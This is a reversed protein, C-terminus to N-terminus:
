TIALSVGAPSSSTISRLQSGGTVAPTRITEITSSAALCRPCASYKRPITTRRWQAALPSPLSRSSPPVAALKSPTPTVATVGVKATDTFVGNRFYKRLISALVDSSYTKTYIPNGQGDYTVTSDFPWSIMAM